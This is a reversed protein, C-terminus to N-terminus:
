HVRGFRENRYKLVQDFGRLNEIITDRHRELIAMAFFIHFQSSLYDTWLIEWLRFIEDLKFERKYWILLMRFFFFFNLSDLSELHNYLRPEVFRVLDCFTSLQNKMGTQDNRFNRELRNMFGTFCWFALNDDQMVIYIPSLIDSMGQVYGQLSPNYENYTSLLDKLMELHLNTGVFPSSQPVPIDDPAFLPHSRDTRHVDKEIRFREEELPPTEYWRAKYRIYEDRKASLISSREISSSSWPVVHLLFLWVQNRIDPHVGEDVTISLRGSSDFCAAWEQPSLPDRRSVIDLNDIEFVGVQAVELSTSKYKRQDAQADEAIKQAWKALYVRALDFEDAVKRVEPSRQLSEPLHPLLHTKAVPHQLLSHAARAGLQTIRSFKELISWKADKFSLLHLPPYEPSDRYHPNVLYLQSDTPS